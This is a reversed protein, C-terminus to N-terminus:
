IEIHVGNTDRCVDLRYETEQWTSILMEITFFEAARVIRDRLENVAEL